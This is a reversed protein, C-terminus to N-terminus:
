MGVRLDTALLELNGSHASACNSKNWRVTVRDLDLASASLWLHEVSVGRRSIEDCIISQKKDRTGFAAASKISSHHFPRRRRTKKRFRGCTNGTSDKQSWVSIRDPFIVGHQNGKLCTKGLNVSDRDTRMLSTKDHVYLIEKEKKKKEKISVCYLIRTGGERRGAEWLRAGFRSFTM